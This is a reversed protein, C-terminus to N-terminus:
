TVVIKAWEDEFGPITSTMADLDATHQSIICLQFEDHMFFEGNVIGDLGHKEEPKVLKIYNEHKRSEHFNFALNCPCIPNEHFQTFNIIMERCHIGLTQGQRWAAVFNKRM